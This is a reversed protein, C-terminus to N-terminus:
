NSTSEGNPLMNSANEKPIKTKIFTEFDTQLTKFDMIPLLDAKEYQNLFMDFYLNGYYDQKSANLDKLEITTRHFFPKLKLKILETQLVSDQTGYLEHLYDSYLNNLITDSLIQTKATQYKNLLFEPSIRNYQRGYRITIKPKIALFKSIIQVLRAHITELTSSFSNLVATPTENRYEIETATKQGKQSIQSDTGWIVEYAKKELKELTNEFNVLVETPPAIYGAVPLALSEGVRPKPVNTINSIDNSRNVGSGNCVPCPEGTTKERGMGECVPCDKAIQWKEPLGLKFIYVCYLSWLRLYFDMTPLVAEIPSTYLHKNEDQILDSIIVAPVEGAYNIYSYDTEEANNSKNFPAIEIYTLADNVIVTYDCADDIVRYKTFGVRNKVPKGNFIIYEIRLNSKKKCRYLASSPYFEIEYEPELKNKSPEIEIFAIGNSEYFYKNKLDKHLFYELSKGNNITDLVTNIRDQETDNESKVETVGGRASYVKDFECLIKKTVSINGLTTVQKRLELAEENEMGVVKTLFSDINSGTVHLRLKDALKDAEILWASRGKKIEELIEYEGNFIM